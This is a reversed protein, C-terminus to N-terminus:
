LAQSHSTPDLGLRIGSPHIDKLSKKKKEWWRTPPCGPLQHDLKDWSQAERGPPVRLVVPSKLDRFDSSM